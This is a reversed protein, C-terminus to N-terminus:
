GRTLHGTDIWVIKQEVFIVITLVFLVCFEYMNVSNSM